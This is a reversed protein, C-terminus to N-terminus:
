LTAPGCRTSVLSYVTTWCSVRRKARESVLSADAGKMQGQEECNVVDNEEGYGSEVMYKSGGELIKDMEAITFKLKRGRGLGSPVAQQIEAALADMHGKVDAM